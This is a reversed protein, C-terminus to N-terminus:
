QVPADGLEVHSLFVARQNLNIKVYDRLLDFARCAMADQSNFTIIYTYGREHEVVGRENRWAGETEMRTFGGFSDALHREIFRRGTRPTVLWAQIWTPNDVM